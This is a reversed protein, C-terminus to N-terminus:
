ELIFSCFPCLAKINTHRTNSMRFMMKVKTNVNRLVLLIAVVHGLMHNPGPLFM